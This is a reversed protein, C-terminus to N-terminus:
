LYMYTQIHLPTVLHLFQTSFVISYFSHLLLNSYPPPSFIIQNCDSTRLVGGVLLKCLNTSVGEAIYVTVCNGDCEVVVHMNM